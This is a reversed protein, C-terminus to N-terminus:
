DINDNEGIACAMLLEQNLQDKRFEGTKIGEHMVVVRDSMGLLEPTESSIMIISKGENVMADMLKYIESKAGIDIGRTPEDMILLEPDGMFWKALVIKQQNGGSLTGAQTDRSSCKINLKEILDDCYYKEKEASMFVKSKTVMDMYAICMNDKVSGILNLGTEKRDETVYAIGAKIADKITKIEKGNMKVIGKDAKNIGFITDMIETRGAGMLGFFGLIEGRKVEFSIDYFENERTLNDVKLIVENSDFEKTHNETKTYVNKLERGVMM